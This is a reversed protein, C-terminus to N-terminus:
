LPVRTPDAAAALGLSALALLALVVLVRVLRARKAEGAEHIMAATAALGCLLTIYALYWWPSGGAVADPHDADGWIWYVFPAQLHALNALRAASLVMAFQGLLTWGVLLVVALLGAGPFRTWRGVLVGVLPGGVAYVVGAALMGGRQTSSIAASDPIPSVAMAVYM